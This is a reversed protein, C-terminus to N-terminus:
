TASLFYLSIAFIGTPLRLAEPLQRQLGVGVSWMWLATGGTAYLGAIIMAYVPEKMAEQLPLAHSM